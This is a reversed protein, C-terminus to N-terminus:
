SYDARKSVEMECFSVNLVLLTLSLTLPPSPMFTQLCLPSCASPLPVLGTWGKGSHRLARPSCSSQQKGGGQRGREGGGGQGLNWGMGLRGEGEIGTRAGREWGWRARERERELPCMDSFMIHVASKCLELLM